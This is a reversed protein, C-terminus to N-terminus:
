NAVEGNNTRVGKKIIFAGIFFIMFEVYFLSISTGIMSFFYSLLLCIPVFTIGVFIYMFNNLRDMKLAYIFPQKIVNLITFLMVASLIEITIKPQINHSKILYLYIFKLFIFTLISFLFTLVITYKTWRKLIFYLEVKTKRSIFPYISQAIPQSLGSLAKIIKEAISYYGVIKNTSFIGLIFITGQGYLNGSLNATFIRWGEKLQYKIHVFKPLIFKVKISKFIIWFGFIGSLIVGIASILPVYLYDAQIRIFIFIAATFIFKSILNLITIYRMREIGQFFWVPFLVNGIVLGFSFFYLLWDKSFKKFIFVVALMIIFSLAALFLQIAIVSSFIESIKDKNDRNISVERTASFIFGYNTIIQFYGAFAQAFAVLGYKSPGLVRVLYPLTILPFIYSAVQLFSLSFFNSFLRKKDKNNTLNKINFM